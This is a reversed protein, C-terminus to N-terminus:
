IHSKLMRQYGRPTRSSIRPVLTCWSPLSPLLPPLACLVLCLLHEAFGRDGSVYGLHLHQPHCTIVAPSARLDGRLTEPLTRSPATEPARSGRRLHTQCVLTLSTSPSAQFGWPKMHGCQPWTLGGKSSLLSCAPSNELLHNFPLFSRM